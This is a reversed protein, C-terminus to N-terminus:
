RVGVFPEKRATKYITEQWFMRGAPKKDIFKAGQPRCPKLSFIGM